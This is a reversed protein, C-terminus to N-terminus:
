GANLHGAHAPAASRSRELELGARALQDPLARVGIRNQERIEEPLEDWAVLAPNTRASDDRTPGHRWGAATREARWREHDAIALAEVVAPDLPPPVDWHRLPVLDWALSSLQQCLHEARRRSSEREVDTIEHWPRAVGEGTLGVVVLYDEHIARALQERVGGTVIDTTCAEDLVAFPHLGSYGRGGELLQALGGGTWMRMIVPVEPDDIQEHAWLATSLALADDDFAVAVGTPPVEVSEALLRMTNPTPRTLDIDITTADVVRALAPHRVVLTAWRETAARDVLTVRLPEDSQERWRQAAVVAISSGLRGAGFLVFHPRRSGDGFPPWETVWSRAAQEFVNFFEVRTSGTAHLGYDRLLRCLEPNLLQVACRLPGIREPRRLSRAMAVVEVNRADASGVVVLDAARDTRAEGLM